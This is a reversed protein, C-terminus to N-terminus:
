DKTVTFWFVTPDRYIDTFFKIRPNGLVKNFLDGMASAQEDRDLTGNFTRVSIEKKFLDTFIGVVEDKFAPYNELRDIIVFICGKPAMSLLQAVAGRAEALHTKNESFLYNFVIIQAGRFQYAYSEYSDAKLVDLPLFAPVICPCTKSGFQETALQLEAEVADALQQWTEAWQPVSDL